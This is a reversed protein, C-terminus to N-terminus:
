VRTCPPPKIGELQEILQATLGQEALPANHKVVSKLGDNLNKIVREPDYIQEYECPDKTWSAIPVVLSM